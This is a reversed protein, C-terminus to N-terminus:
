RSTPNTKMLNLSKVLSKSPIKQPDSMGTPKKPSLRDRIPIPIDFITSEKKYSNHGFNKCRSPGSLFTM